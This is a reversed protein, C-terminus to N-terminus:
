PTEEAHRSPTADRLAGRASVYVIDRFAPHRALKEPVTASDAVRGDAMVIVRDFYVLASTPEDLLLM